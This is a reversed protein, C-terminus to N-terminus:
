QAFGPHLTQPLHITKKYSLIGEAKIMGRKESCEAAVRFVVDLLSNRNTCLHGPSQRRPTKM